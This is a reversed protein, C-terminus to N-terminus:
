VGMVKKCLLSVVLPLLFSAKQASCLSLPSQSPALAVTAGGGGRGGGFGVRRFGPGAGWRGGVQAGWPRRAPLGAPRPRGPLRALIVDGREPGPQASGAPEARAGPFRQRPETEPEPEAPRPRSGGRGVRSVPLRGAREPAARGPCGRPPGRVAAAREGRVSISRSVSVEGTPQGGGRRPGQARNRVSSGAGLSWRCEGKQGRAQGAAPRRLKTFKSSDSSRRVEREEEAFLSRLLVWRTSRNPRNFSKINYVQALHPTSVVRIM